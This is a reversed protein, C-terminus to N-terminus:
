GTYKEFLLRRDRLAGSCFSRSDPSRQDDSRAVHQGLVVGPPVGFRARFVRSFQGTDTFGSDFAVQSVRGRVEPSRSLVQYAHDLRRAMIYCQIGGVSKFERFAIARSVGVASCVDAVGLAPNAFNRGIFTRM